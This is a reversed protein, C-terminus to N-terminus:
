TVSTIWVNWFDSMFSLCEAPAVKPGRLHHTDSGPKRKSSVSSSYSCDGQIRDNRELGHYPFLKKILVWRGRSSCCLRGIPPLYSLYAKFSCWANTYAGWSPSINRIKSVVRHIFVCSARHCEIIQILMQTHLRLNQISTMFLVSYISSYLLAELLLPSLICICLASFLHNWTSCRGPGLRM